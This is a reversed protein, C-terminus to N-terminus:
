DFTTEGPGFQNDGSDNPTAKDGIFMTLLSVAISAINSPIMISKGYAAARTEMEAQSIDGNASDMIMKFYEGGGFLGMVILMAILMLVVYILLYVLVMWGSKGGNHLRKVWIVVWPYILLISIFSFIKGIQPSILSTLGLLVGLAILIFGGKYFESSDIRGSPSFLLNGM